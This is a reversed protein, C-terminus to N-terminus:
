RRRRRRKGAWIVENEPQVSEYIELDCPSAWDIKRRLPAPYQLRRFYPSQRLRLTGSPEVFIVFLQHGAEAHRNFRAILDLMARETFSAFMFLVLDTQPFKWRAFDAKIFEVDRCAMISRPWHRLNLMADEYRDTDREVGIIKEFPRRSAELAVRGRGAGLDVFTYHRPDDPLADLAWNILRRPTPRDGPDYSRDPSREATTVREPNDGRKDFIKDHLVGVFRRWPGAKRAPRGGGAFVGAPQKFTRPTPSAREPGAEAAENAVADGAATQRTTAARKRPPAKAPKGDGDAKARTRAAPKRAKAGAEGTAAPTEGTGSKAKRPARKGGSSKARQEALQRLRERDELILDDESPTAPPKAQAPNAAKRPKPATPKKRKSVRAPKKQDAEDAM